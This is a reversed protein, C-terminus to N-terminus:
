LLIDKRNEELNLDEMSRDEKRKEKLLKEMLLQRARSYQSKSTGETIGLMDSIENHKYGEIAFLNFIMRCGEPLEGIMALLADYKLNEFGFNSHTITTEIQLNDDMGIQWDPQKQLAKLATNIVIRKLWAELPCDFRFNQLNKYIKVFSDQLVDQANDRNKMYRMAVAFLKGSFLEYFQKQAARDQRICAEVIETHSTM